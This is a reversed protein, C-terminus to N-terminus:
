ALELCYIVKYTGVVVRERSLPAIATPEVKLDHSVLVEGTAADLVYVWGSKTGAYLRGEHVRLRAPNGPAKQRWLLAGTKLDYASLAPGGCYAVEDAFTLETHLDPESEVQHWVVEGTVTSIGFREREDFHCWLEGCHGHYGLTRLHPVSREKMTALDVFHMAGDSYRCLQGDHAAWNTAPWEWVTELTTPDLGMLAKPSELGGLVYVPGSPIPPRIRVRTRGFNRQAVTEGAISLRLAALGDVYISDGFPFYHDIEDFAFEREWATKGNAQLCWIAPTSPIDERGIKLIIRGGIVDLFSGQFFGDVRKKWALKAPQM